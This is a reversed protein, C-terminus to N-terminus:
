AEEGSRALVVEGLDELVTAIALLNREDDDVLLVSAREAPPAATAIHEEARLAVPMEGVPGNMPRSPPRRSRPRRHRRRKAPALLGFVCCRSCCSLISRSPSITPRAPM